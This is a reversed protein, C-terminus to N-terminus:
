LASYTSNSSLQKIQRKEIYKPWIKSILAKAKLKTFIISYRIYYSLSGYTSNIISRERYNLLINKNSIGDEAEFITIPVGIYKFNLGDRYLRLYLDYDGCIKYQTNYKFRKLIDLRTFTAPHFIPFYINFTDICDPKAIFQCKSFAMILDGYVVEKGEFNKEVTTITSKNNLVDGSNLFLAYDGCAIEIGKNMADYIGNDPESIWHSIKDSYKKIIDVTGDTSGGDIIIYEINDYSQNIVSKITGEITSCSNFCVTIISITPKM